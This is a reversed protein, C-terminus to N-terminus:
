TPRLLRSRSRSLATSRSIATCRRCSVSSATKTSTRMRRVCRPPQRPAGRSEMNWDDACLLDHTRQFTPRCRTRGPYRTDASSKQAAAHREEDRSGRLLRVRTQHLSELESNAVRLASQLDKCELEALVDGLQVQQGEKVHITQIVGDIAAGVGFLDSL